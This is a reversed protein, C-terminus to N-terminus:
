TLANYIFTSSLNLMDSLGSIYSCCVFLCVYLLLSLLLLLLLFLLAAAVVFVVVVVMEIDNLFYRFWMGSSCSILSSCFIAMNPVAYISWFTSNYLNLINFMPFLMKHVVFLFHLIVALNYVRSVHNTEPIYTYISQICLSWSSPSWIWKKM